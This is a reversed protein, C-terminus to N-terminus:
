AIEQLIKRIQSIRFPKRLVASVRLRRVAKQDVGQGVATVFVIPTQASMERISRAVDWGTVEPMGLDAIVLDAPARQFDAMASAGDAFTRVRHGELCLIERFMSLVDPNDDVVLIDLADPM